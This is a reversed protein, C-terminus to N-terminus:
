RRSPINGRQSLGRGSSSASPLRAYSILTSHRLPLTSTRHTGSPLLPSDPKYAAIDTFTYKPMANPQADGILRNVWLNTVRIELKNPGPQLAGTVDIRFPEKWATGVPKGNITVAALEHM